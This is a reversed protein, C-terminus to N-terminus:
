GGLKITNWFEDWESSIQEESLATKFALIEYIHATILKFFNRYYKGVSDKALIGEGVGKELVSKIRDASAKNAKMAIEIIKDRLEEKPFMSNRLILLTKSDLLIIQNIYARYANYLMKETGQNEAKSIAAKVTETLQCFVEQFVSLFLEEKSSFHAYLAPATIGVAKTIDKVSTGDYGNAAFQRIAEEKIKEISM